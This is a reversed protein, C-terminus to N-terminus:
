ISQNLKKRKGKKERKEKRKNVEKQKPPSYTSFPIDSHDQTVGPTPYLNSNRGSSLEGM